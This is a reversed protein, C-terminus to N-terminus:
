DPRGKNCEDIDEQGVRVREEKVTLDQVRVLDEACLQDFYLALAIRSLRPRLPPPAVQSAVPLAQERPGVLLKHDHHM